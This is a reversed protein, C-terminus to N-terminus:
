WKELDSLINFRSSIIVISTSRIICLYVYIYLISVVTKLTKVCLFSFTFICVFCFLVSWLIHYHSLTLDTNQMVCGRFDHKNYYCADGDKILVLKFSRCIWPKNLLWLQILMKTLIDQRPYSLLQRKVFCQKQLPNRSEGMFTEEASISTNSVNGGKSCHCYGSIAAIRLGSSTM